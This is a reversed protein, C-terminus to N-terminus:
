KDLIALLTSIKGTLSYFFVTLIDKLTYSIIIKDLYIKYYIDFARFIKVGNAKSHSNTSSSNMSM